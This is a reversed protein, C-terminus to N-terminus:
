RYAEQAAEQSQAVYTSLSTSRLVQALPILSNNDLCVPDYFNVHRVLLQVTITSYVTIPFNFPFEDEGVSKSALCKKEEIKGEGYFSISFFENGGWISKPYKQKISFEEM